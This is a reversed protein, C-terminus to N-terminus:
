GPLGRDPRQAAPPHPSSARGRAGGRERADSEQIRALGNQGAWIGCLFAFNVQRVYAAEVLAARRDGEVEGSEHVEDVEAAIQDVISWSFRRLTDAEEANRAYQTWISAEESDPLIERRELDDERAGLLRFLEPWVVRGPLPAKAM